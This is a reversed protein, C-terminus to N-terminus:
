ALEPSILNAVAVLLKAVAPNNVKLYADQFAAPDLGGHFQAEVAFTGNAEYHGITQDSATAKYTRPNTKDNLETGSGKIKCGFVVVTGDTIAPISSLPTNLQKGSNDTLFAQKHFPFCERPLVENTSSVSGDWIVKSGTSDYILPFVTDSANDNILLYDHVPPPPPPAMIFFQSLHINRKRACTQHRARTTSNNSPFFPLCRGVEVPRIYM